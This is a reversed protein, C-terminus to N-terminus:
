TGTMKFPEPQDIPNKGGWWDFANFIVIDGLYAFGYVPIITFGLFILENGWKSETAKGNWTHLGEFLNNPGICSSGMLSLTLAAALLSKKM